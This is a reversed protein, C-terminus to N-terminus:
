LLYQINVNWWIKNEGFCQHKPICHSWRASIEPSRAKIRRLSLMSSSPEQREFVVPSTRQINPSSQLKKQSRQSIMPFNTMSLEHTNKEHSQKMPFGHSKVPFNWQSQSLVETAISPHQFAAQARASAGTHRLTPANTKNKPLWKLLPQQSGPNSPFSAKIINSIPSVLCKM